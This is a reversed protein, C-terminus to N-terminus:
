FNGLEDEEFKDVETEDTVLDSLRNRASQEQQEFYTIAHTNLKSEFAAMNACGLLYNSGENDEENKVQVNKSQLMKNPDFPPVCDDPPKKKRRDDVVGVDTSGRIVAMLIINSSEEMNNIAVKVKVNGEKAVPIQNKRRLSSKKRVM